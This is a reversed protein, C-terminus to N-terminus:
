PESSNWAEPAIQSGIELMDVQVASSPLLKDQSSPSHMAGSRNDGGGRREGVEGEQSPKQIVGGESPVTVGGGVRTGVGRPGGMGGGRSLSGRPTAPPKSGFVAKRVVPVGDGELGERPVVTTTTAVSLSSINDDQPAFEQGLVRWHRPSAHGSQTVSLQEEERPWATNRVMDQVSQKKQQRSFRFADGRFSALPEVGGDDNDVQWPLKYAMKANQSLEAFPHMFRKDVQGPHKTSGFKAETLIFPNKPMDFRWPERDFPLTLLFFGDAVGQHLFYIVSLEVRAIENTKGESLLIFLHNV